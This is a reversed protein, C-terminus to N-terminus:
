RPIGWGQHSVTDSVAFDYVANLTSARNILLAKNLSPKNTKSYNAAFFQQMLALIGSVKGAAISTGRDYRWTSGLAADSATLNSSAM